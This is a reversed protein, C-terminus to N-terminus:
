LIFRQEIDSVINAAGGKRNKTRMAGKMSLWRKGNDKLLDRITYMLDATSFVTVGAGDKELLSMNGQEQGPLAYNIIVPLCMSYAEFVTAAGAKGIYLHANKMLGAMDSTKEIVAVHEGSLFSLKSARSGAILTIHVGPVANVMSTIDAIVRHIPAHAGYLIRFDQNTPVSTLSSLNDFSSRVPFGAASLKKEDIAYREMVLELSYEDTLYVVDANTLMWPKSIELADTVVVGYPVSSLAEARMSDLMYAYLPYTCLVIDPMYQTLLDRICWTVRRLVPSNSKKSWDANETQSYTIGWLWPAQKVCFQYFKRTLSYIRPSAEICPDEVWVKWGRKEAAQQIAHAAANHGDGYGITLILLKRKKNM